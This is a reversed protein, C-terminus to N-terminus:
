PRGSLPEIRVDDLVATGLGTLAAVIRLEGSAPVKRYLTYRKWQPVAGTIRIGLAEGAGSDYVVLGDPSAQVPLPVKVSFSVRVLSGPTLRVPPSEVGLFTRELAAPSAAPRAQGGGPPAAPAKPKAELVMARKGSVADDTLRATPEVDDLTNTVVNWGGHADRGSEFDGATLLNDGPSGAAVQRVLQVHQPLSYYSVAYPSATPVDLGKTLAAWQSRALVRLPRQARQALRYATRHDGAEWTTRAAQLQERASRLLSESDPLAVNLQTLQAQVREVKALTVNALDFSWQSATPAMRRSLDQWRVILGTPSTDATFVVAATHDFEPLTVQTGGVVRRVALSRVEGPTVEWAQTGVPVQPVTFSLRAVAGQEPVYQAGDGLWIPLVLVGRECRVVAAKVQPVSTDIWQPPDVATVLL